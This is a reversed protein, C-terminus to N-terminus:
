TISMTPKSYVPVRFIEERSGNLVAIHRKPDDEPKDISVMIAIAQARAIADDDTKLILGSPDVLSHGDKIDFYYHPM